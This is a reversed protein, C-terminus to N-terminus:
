YGDCVEAGWVKTVDAAADHRGCAKNILGVVHKIADQDEVSIPVGSAECDRKLLEREASSLSWDIRGATM